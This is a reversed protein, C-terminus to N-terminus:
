LRSIVDGTKRAMLFNHSSSRKKYSGGRNVSRLLSSYESVIITRKRCCVNAFSKGTVLSQYHQSIIDPRYGSNDTPEIEEVWCVGGFSQDLGVFGMGCHFNPGM